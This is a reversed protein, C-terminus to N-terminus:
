VSADPGSGGPGARHRRRALTYAGAAALVAAGVGVGVVTGVGFGDEEDEDEDDEAGLASESTKDKVEDYDKPGACFERNGPDMEAVVTLDVTDVAEGQGHDKLEVPYTGPKIDCLVMGRGAARPTGDKGERFEEAKLKVPEVFAPSELTVYGKDDDLTAEEITVVFEAERGRQTPDSTSLTWYPDEASAGAATTLVLAAAAVSTLAIRVRKM